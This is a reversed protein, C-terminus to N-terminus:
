MRAKTETNYTYDTYYADGMSSLTVHFEHDVQTDLIGEPDLQCFQKSGSPPTNECEYEGIRIEIEDSCQTADVVNTANLFAVVEATPSNASMGTIAPNNFQVKKLMPTVAWSYTIFFGESTPPNPTSTGVAACPGTPQSNDSSGAHTAEFGNINVTVKYPKDVAPIVKITASAFVTQSDMYGTSYHYTGPNTFHLLFKGLNGSMEESWYQNNDTEADSKTSVRQLRIVPVTNPISIMWSWLIESGVEIITTDASSGDFNMFGKSTIRLHVRNINAETKCTIQRDELTSIDCPIDGLTVASTEPAASDTAFGYGDIVITRGGALSSFSGSVSTIKLTVSGSVANSYGHNCVYVQIDIKAPEQSVSKAVIKTDTWSIIEAAENGLKVISGTCFEDQPELNTGTITFVEGGLVSFKTKDVSITPTVGGTIESNPRTRCYFENYLVVNLDDDAVCLIEAGGMTLTVEQGQHFGSGTVFVITGGEISGTQPAHSVVKSEVTYSDASEIIGIEPIDVIVKHLGQGTMGINCSIEIISDSNGVSSCIDFLIDGLSIKMNELTGDYAKLDVKVSVTEGWAVIAGNETIIDVIEPTLNTSYEFNCDDCASRQGNAMVVVQPVDHVTAMVSGPMIETVVASEAERVAFWKPNHVRNSVTGTISFPKMNGHQKSRIFWSYGTNCWGGRFTFVNFGDPGLEPWTEVLKELFEPAWLNGDFRITLKDASDGYSITVDSAMEQDSISRRIVWADYIDRTNDTNDHYNLKMYGYDKPADPMLHSQIFTDWPESFGPSATRWDPGNVTEPDGASSDYKEASPPLITPLPVHYGCTIHENWNNVHIRFTNGWTGRNKWIAFQLPVQGDFALAKQTQKMKFSNSRLRGIRVEDVYITSWMANQIRVATIDFIKNDKVNLGYISGSSLIQSTIKFCHSKWIASEWRVNQVLWGTWTQKDGNNDKYIFSGYIALQEINGKYAFVGNKPRVRKQVM